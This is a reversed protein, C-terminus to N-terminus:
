DCIEEIVIQIFGQEAYRKEARLSCILSDDLWLVGNASDLIIKAYNDVDPKVSPYKRNISKPKTIGFFVSVRIATDFPDEQFKIKLKDKLLKEAYRTKSPTFAFGSRTFRPRGKAVPEQHIILEARRM